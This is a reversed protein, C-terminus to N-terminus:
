QEQKWRARRVGQAPKTLAENHADVVLKTGDMRKQLAAIQEAQAEIAAQQRRLVEAIRRDVITGEGIMEILDAISERM